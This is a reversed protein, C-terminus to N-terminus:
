WWMIALGLLSMIPRILRNTGARSGSVQSPTIMSWTSHLTPTPASLGNTWNPPPPSSQILSCPWLFQAEQVSLQTEIGTWLDWDWHEWSINGQNHWLIIGQIEVQNSSPSFLEWMRMQLLNYGHCLNTKDKIFDESNFIWHENFTSFELALSIQIISPVHWM